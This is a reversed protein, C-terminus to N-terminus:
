EPQELPPTTTKKLLIGVMFLCAVLLVNRILLYIVPIIDRAILAGYAFPFFLLTFFNALFFCILLYKQLKKRERFDTLSFLPILLLLWVMYQPSFVKNFVVFIGVALTSLIVIISHSSRKQLIWFSVAYLITLLIVIIPLPTKALDKAYDNNIEFAGNQLDLHNKVLGVKEAVFLGSAYVSEIQIDRQTQYKLFGEFNEQGMLVFPLNISVVAVVVFMSIAISLWKKRVLENIAFIPLIFLPYIKLCAALTLLIIALILFLKRNNKVYNLYLLLGITVFMAPFIDFRTIMVNFSLASCILTFAVAWLAKQKEVGLNLILKFSILLGGFLVILTWFSYLVDFDPETLGGLIGAPFVIFFPALPPYEIFFDIYPLLGSHIKEYLVYYLHAEWGWGVLGILAPWIKTALAVIVLFGGSFIIYTTPSKLFPKFKNM